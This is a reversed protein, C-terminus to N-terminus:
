WHTASLFIYLDWASPVTTPEIPNPFFKIELNKPTVPDFNTRQSLFRKYIDRWFLNILLAVGVYLVFLVGVYLVFLVGPWVPMFRVSWEFLRRCLDLFTAVIFSVNLVLLSAGISYSVQRPSGWYLQLNLYLVHSIIAVVFVVFVFAAEMLGNPIIVVMVVAKILLIILVGQFKWEGTAMEGYM